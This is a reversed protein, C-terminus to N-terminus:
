EFGQQESLADKSIAVDAKEYMAQVFAHYDAMGEQQVLQKKGADRDAVPISEPRGPLVEDLSFITYGGDPMAVKARVPKDDVPKKASFIRAVVTADLEQENRGVLKPGEVKAGADEGAKAFDEGADLAALMKASREAVIAEAKQKRVANVVQSRM